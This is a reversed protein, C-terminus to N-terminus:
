FTNSSTQLQRCLQPCWSRSNIECWVVCSSIDLPLLFREFGSSFPFRPPNPLRRGRRPVTRATSTLLEFRSPARSAARCLFRFITSKFVQGLNKHPLFCSQTRQSAMSELYRQNKIATQGLRLFVPHPEGPWSYHSENPLSFATGAHEPSGCGHPMSNDLDNIDCRVYIGGWDTGRRLFLRSLSLQM